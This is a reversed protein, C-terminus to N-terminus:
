PSVLEPLAESWPRLPAGTLEAYRSGDLVSFAPRAAAAGLQASTIEAVETRLGALKLAARALEAWTCSGANTVHVLGRAHLRVLAVLAGALDTAMTPAFVQDAVVRLPEGARARALIREVFSGGKGRSGGRGLVGSTRVILHDCRSAQVMMEGALKSVGYACRPAAVDEERYPTRRAGDFVYDTSVHVLLAGTERSARALHAPGAANVLLAAAPDREAEDVRNYATANFVVDPRSAAVRSAVAAADTVDLAARGGAWVLEDGLRAVLARGLQGDAGTVLARM